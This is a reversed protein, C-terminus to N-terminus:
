TAVEQFDVIVFTIISSSYLLCYANMLTIRLAFNLNHKKAEPPKAGLGGGPSQGQVGSPSKRGGSGRLKGRRAVGSTTGWGFCFDPQAM